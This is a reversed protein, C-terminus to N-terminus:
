CPFLLTSPYLTTSPVPCAYVIPTVSETWAVSESFSQLTVLVDTESINERIVFAQGRTAMAQFMRTWSGQEPGEVASVDYFLLKANDSIQVSEILLEANNIGHEPLNVTAIQGAEIGIRRTRFQIRRGIVGYKQIKANASQFAAERNTTQPEDAVDENIGSNQELTQRSSIQAEDKSMVVMSFEGQYTVSLVDTDLIPTGVNDQSIPNEGKSWYWQKGSDVGRIGVTQLIGNLTITPVKAVKFGTSFTTLKGDGKFEQTQPDTIDTGGKIYQTNRYQSNGHEVTVDKQIDAGTVTWPATYTARGVFHLRKDFDIYWIFGTKEALADLATTAPVYNFVAEQVVSGAEISQGGQVDTTYTAGVITGDNGNPTSDLAITGTGENFKWYGVLGSENGILEKYMNAQIETQTRATNWIRVDDIIGAYYSGSSWNGISGIPNTVLNLVISVQSIYVSDVYLMATAGSDYIVAYHHYTDDNPVTYGFSRFTGDWIGISRSPNLILHHINGTLVALITSYTGSGPSKWKYWCEATSSGSLEIPTISVREGVGDFSLAYPNHWVDEDALKTDIIDKVIDGALTTEYAKALIRKDALYHWDKCSITHLLIQNGPLAKEATKDIVGAYIVTAGDVVEVPQGQSYHITLDTKVVFSATSREGIADDISLSGDM